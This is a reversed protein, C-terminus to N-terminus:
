EFSKMEPHDRTKERQKKSIMSDLMLKMSEQHNSYWTYSKYFEERSTLHLKFIKDQLKLNEIDVNKSSDNILYENAYIDANLYDWFVDQMKDQKLIGKPPDNKDKCSFLLIAVSLMILYKM